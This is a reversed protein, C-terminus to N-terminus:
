VFRLVKPLKKEDVTWNPYSGESLKRRARYELERPPPVGYDFQQQNTLSNLYKKSTEGGPFHTRSSIVDARFKSMLIENERIVEKESKAKHCDIDPTMLDSFEECEIDPTMLNRFDEDSMEMIEEKTIYVKEVENAPQESPRPQLDERMFKRIEDPTMPIWQPLKFIDNPVIPNCGYPRRIMKVTKNFGRLTHYTIRPPLPKFQCPKQKDRRTSKRYLCPLGNRDVRKELMQKKVFKVADEKTRHERADYYIPSPM